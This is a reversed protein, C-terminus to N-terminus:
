HSKGSRAAHVRAPIGPPLSHDWEGVDQGEKAWGLEGMTLGAVRLFLTGDLAEIGELEEKGGAWYGVPRSGFLNAWHILSRTIKCLHDDPHELVSPIIALWPNPTVIEPALTGKAPKHSLKLTANPDQPSISTSSMFEKIHLAPKQKTIWLALATCLYSRFLLRIAHPPFYAVIAPFFLSSTVLHM